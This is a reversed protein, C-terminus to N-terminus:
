SSTALATQGDAELVLTNMVRMHVDARPLDGLADDMSVVYAGRFIWEGRAPLNVGERESASLGSLGAPGM